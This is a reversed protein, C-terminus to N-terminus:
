RSGSRQPPRPMARALRALARSLLMRTAGESRDLARAAQAHTLGVVRTLLIVERYDEPLSALAEEAQAWDERAAVERSPSPTRDEPELGPAQPLPEGRGEERRERRWYRGRDAIKREAALFLWHRFAGEELHGQEAVDVLVERCASLALDLTEERARLRAGARARVFTVLAPLHREILEDLAQSDGSTLRQVLELHSDRM